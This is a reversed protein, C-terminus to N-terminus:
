EQAYNEFLLNLFENVDAKINPSIYDDLIFDEVSKGCANYNPRIVCYYTMLQSDKGCPYDLACAFLPLSARALHIPYNDKKYLLSKKVDRVIEDFTVKLESTLYGQNNNTRMVMLAFIDPSKIQPLKQFLTNKFTSRLVGLRFVTDNILDEDKFYSGDLNVKIKGIEDYKANLIINQKATREKEPIQIIPKIYSYLQKLKEQMKRVESPSFSSVGIRQAKLQSSLQGLEDLIAVIEALQEEQETEPEITQYSEQLRKFADSYSEQADLLYAQCHQLHYLYYEEHKEGGDFGFKRVDKLRQRFLKLEEGNQWDTIANKCMLFDTFNRFATLYSIDTQEPQEEKHKKQQRKEIPFDKPIKNVVSSKKQNPKDVVTKKVAQSSQQQITQRNDSKVFILYIILAVVLLLYYKKKNM